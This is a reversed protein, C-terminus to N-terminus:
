IGGKLHMQASPELACNHNRTTQGDTWGENVKCMKSKKESVATSFENFSSLFCIEVDEVLTTNNRVISFVCYNAASM